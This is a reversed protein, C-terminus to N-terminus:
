VLEENVEKIAQQVMTKHFDALKEYPVGHNRWENHEEATALMMGESPEGLVKKTLALAFRLYRHNRDIFRIAKMPDLIVPSGLVGMM